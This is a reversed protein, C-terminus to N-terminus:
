SQNPEIILFLDNSVEPEFTRLDIGGYLSPTDFGAGRLTSTLESAGWPRHLLSQTETRDARRITTQFSLLIGEPRYSREYTAGDRERKNLIVERDRPIRGYNLTQLVLVGEPRLLRRFGTLITSLGNEDHIHALTNGLCVIADVPTSISDTLSELDVHVTRISVGYHTANTKVQKLMERSVDVAVVRVGLQALLIGHVGTGAGADIATRVGYRDVLVHFFPRERVIRSEIDTMADYAPALADFFSSVSRQTDTTLEM